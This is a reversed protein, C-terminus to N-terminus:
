EAEGILVSTDVDTAARTATDRAVSALREAEYGITDSLAVGVGVVPIVGGVL